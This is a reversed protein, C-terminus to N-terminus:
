LSKRVNSRVRYESPTHGTFRKFVTAFYQSSSFGLNHATGTISEDQDLRRRAEDIRERILWDNPTTGLENKFLALLQTATLGVADACEQVHVRRHMNARLWLTAAELQPTRSNPNRDRELATATLDLIAITHARAYSPRTSGHLCETLLREFHHKIIPQPTAVRTHGDLAHRLGATERPTLGLPRDGGLDIQLWCIDCPELSEDVAGHPENPRTVYVDGAHLQHVEDAVWWRVQGAIFYVIEYMPHDHQPLHGHVAEPQRSRGVMGLESLPTDDEFVVVRSWM